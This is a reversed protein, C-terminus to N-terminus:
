SSDSAPSSQALRRRCYNEWRHWGIVAVGSGGVDPEETKVATKERWGHNCRLDFCLGRLRGPELEGDVLAQAKWAAIRLKAKEITRYFGPYTQRKQGFYKFVSQDAYGLHHALGQITPIKEYELCSCFYEETKNQLLKLNRVKRPRGGKSLAM